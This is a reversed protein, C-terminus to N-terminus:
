YRHLTVHEVKHMPCRWTEGRNIDRVPGGLRVPKRDIDWCSPCYPYKDRWYLGEGKTFEAGFDAMRKADAIEGKLARNVEDAELLATRVDVLKDQLTELYDRMEEDTLKKKERIAKRVAMVIDLANKSLLLGAAIDIPM